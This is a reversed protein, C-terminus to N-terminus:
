VDLRLYVLDIRRQLSGFLFHEDLAAHMIFVNLYTPLSSDGGLFVTINFRPLDRANSDQPFSFSGM